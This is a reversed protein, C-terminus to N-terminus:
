HIVSGKASVSGGVNGCNVSGNATVNGSVNGCNVSGIADVDKYVDGDIIVGGNVTLDGRVSGKVQVSNCSDVQLSECGGEIVINAQKLDEGGSYLKGDVYVASNVINVSRGNPVNIHKRNVVINMM